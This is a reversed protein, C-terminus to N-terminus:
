SCGAEELDRGYKERLAEEVDIGLLNALSVTWAIVDALEERAARPDGRRVAEALEGVEEVLWAFTALLGRERDRELYAKKMAEQLCGVEV